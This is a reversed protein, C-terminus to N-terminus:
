LVPVSVLLPVDSMVRLYRTFILPCFVYEAADTIVTVGVGGGSGPLTVGVVCVIADPLEPVSVWEPEDPTLERSHCSLVLLPLLQDSIDPAVPVVYLVPVSVLVPDDAM